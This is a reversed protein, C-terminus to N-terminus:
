ADMVEADGDLIEVCGDRRVCLEERGLDLMARRNGLLTDLRDGQADSGGADLQEAREPRVRRDPPEDGATPRAQVVDGERDGVQRGLEAAQARVADLQDVLLRPRAQEPQLDCENV